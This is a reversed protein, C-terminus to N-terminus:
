IGRADTEASESRHVARLGVQFLEEHPIKSLQDFMHPAKGVAGLLVGLALLSCAPLTITRMKCGRPDGCAHDQELVQRYFVEMGDEVSNLADFLSPGFQDSVRAETSM